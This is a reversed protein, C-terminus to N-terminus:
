KKKKKKYVPAGALVSPTLNVQKIDLSYFELCGSVIEEEAKLSLLKVGCKLYLSLQFIQRDGNQIKKSM